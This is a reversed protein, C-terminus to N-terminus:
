FYQGLDQNGYVTGSGFGTDGVYPNAPVGSTGGSFRGALFGGVGGVANAIANNGALIGGAQAAGAQQMLAANNAGTTLAASGVGAASNQGVQALSGYRGLQREILASLLNSRQGALAENVNGGRLGGTASANALIAEAGQNVLNMYEPNQMLAGIQAQQAKAGKLGGLQQYGTLGATGATIYPKLLAQVKDFQRRNEQVGYAAAEAQTSAADKAGNSSLLGGVISGGVGAVIGWSM